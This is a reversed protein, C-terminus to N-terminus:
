MWAWSCPKRWAAASDKRDTCPSSCMAAATSPWSSMASSTPWLSTSARIKQQASRNRGKSHHLLRPRHNSRLDTILCSSCTCSNISRSGIRQDQGAQGDVTGLLRPPWRAAMGGAAGAAACGGPRSGCEGAPLGPGAIFAGHGHTIAQEIPEAFLAPTPHQHLLGLLSTTPKDSHACCPRM